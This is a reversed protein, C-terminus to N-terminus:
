LPCWDFSLIFLYRSRSTRSVFALLNRNTKIKSRIPPCFPVLKETLWDGLWDTLWDGLWDTLWDGLWDTLWDGLTNALAFAFKKRYECLFQKIIHHMGAAWSIKPLNM